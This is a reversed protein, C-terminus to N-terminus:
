VRAQDCNLCIYVDFDGLLEISEILFVSSFDM